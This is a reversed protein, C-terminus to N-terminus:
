VNLSDALSPSDAWFLQKLLNLPSVGMYFSLCEIQGMGLISPCKKIKRATARSVELCKSISETTMDLWRM